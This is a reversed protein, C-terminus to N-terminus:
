LIDVRKQYDRLSKQRHQQQKTVLNFGVRQSGMSKLGGLVETWQINWALISSHNAMEKKLTDEQGLSSVQTEQITLHIKKAQFVWWPLGLIYFM